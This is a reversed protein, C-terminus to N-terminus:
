SALRFARPGRHYSPQVDRAIRTPVYIRHLGVWSTRARFGQDRVTARHQSRRGAYGGSGVM